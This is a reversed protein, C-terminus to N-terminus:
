GVDMMFREAIQRARQVIEGPEGWVHPPTGNLYALLIGQTLISRTRRRVQEESDNVARLHALVGAPSGADEPMAYTVEAVDAVFQRLMAVEAELAERPTGQFAPIGEEAM